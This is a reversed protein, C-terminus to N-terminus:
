WARRAGPMGCSDRASSAAAEEQTDYPPCVSGWASGFVVLDGPGVRGDGNYDSCISPNGPGEGYQSGFFTWDEIETQCNGAAGDFDPSVLMDVSRLVVGASPYTPSYAVVQGADPYNCCGNRKWYLDITGSSNTYGDFVANSCQCIAECCSEASYIFVYAGAIPAGYEDNVTVTVRCFIDNEESSTGIFRPYAMSDLPSVVSREPDPYGSQALALEACVPMCLICLVNMHARM